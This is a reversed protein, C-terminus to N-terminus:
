GTAGTPERLEAPCAGSPIDALDEHIYRLYIDELTPEITSFGTIEAGAAELARL